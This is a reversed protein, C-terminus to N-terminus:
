NSDFLGDPLGSGLRADMMSFAMLSSKSKSSVPGPYLSADLDDSKMVLAKHLELRTLIPESGGNGQVPETHQVIQRPQGNKEPFFDIIWVMTLLLIVVASICSMRTLNFWVPYSHPPSPEHELRRKLSAHFGAPLPTEMNKRGSLGVKIDQLSQYYQRCADDQEILRLLFAQQTSDSEGLALDMIAKRHQELLKSKM